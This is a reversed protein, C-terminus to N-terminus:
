LINTRGEWKKKSGFRHPKAWTITLDKSLDKSYYNKTTKTTL